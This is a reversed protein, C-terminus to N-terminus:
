SSPNEQKLLADVIHRVDQTYADGQWIWCYKVRRVKGGFEKKLTLCIKRKGIYSVEGSRRTQILINLSIAEAIAESLEFVDRPIASINLCGGGNRTFDDAIAKIIQKKRKEEM